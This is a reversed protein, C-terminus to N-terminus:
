GLWPQLVDFYNEEPPKRLTGNLYNREIEYGMRILTHEKWADGMLQFGIPLLNGNTSTGDDDEETTTTATDDDDNDDDIRHYGVPISLAPLGLFNAMPAFKMLKMVLPVNSEGHSLFGPATKPITDGLVPTAIADLRHKGFLANRVYRIAFTRMKEAALVEDATVTRGMQITIETNPEMRYSANYFPVEWTLGFESLIKMAHSLQIERVFPITINVITVGLTREMFRVVKACEDYVIPDTHRFHDWYIGVRMGDLPKTNEKEKEKMVSMMMGNTNHNDNDNPTTHHIGSLHPPPLYADGFLENYFVHKRGTTTRNYDYIQGLLLYSLAIDTMSSAIPGARTNTLSNSREYPIRGYTPIM